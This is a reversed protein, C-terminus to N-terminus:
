NNLEYVKKAIEEIGDIIYQSYVYIYKGPITYVKNNKIASVEQFSEDSKLLNIFKMNDTNIGDRWVPILIIDPNIEIVKEKSLKESKGLKLEKALNNIYIKEFMDNLISGEGNTVEYHSYELVRPYIKKNEKIKSQLKKLREDMNKIIDLGKKEEELLISIDKILKKNGEFTSPTKYVYVEIGADEIQSLSEKKIWEAAIVLDPELDILKELNDEIKLYNNIQKGLISTMENGNSNSSLAVIRDSDVLSYIIEDSAMSLSVIKNYKKNQNEKCYLFNFILLYGIILIIINKKM